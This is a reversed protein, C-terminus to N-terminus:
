RKEVVVVVVVVVGLFFLTLKRKVFVLKYSPHRLLISVKLQDQREM